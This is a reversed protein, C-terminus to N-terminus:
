GKTTARLKKLRERVEAVRPQLEPEADKWMEVFKEFSAIAKDRDGKAEYLEGLRKYSGALWQSDESMNPDKVAAFREFYVIASDAHGALDHAQAMAVTGYKDFISLRRDAERLLPLAADWRQEALAVHAAFFARGGEVDPERAAQDHEYGDLAQHALAPDRMRFALRALNRWPRDEPSIQSLPVRAFSRALAARAETPRELMAAYYYATDIGISLQNFKSPRARLLAEDGLVEWKLAERPQGRWEATAGAASASM